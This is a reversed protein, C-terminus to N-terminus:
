RPQPRSAAGPYLEWTGTEGTLLGPRDGMESEPIPFPMPTVGCGGLAALPGILLAVAMLRSTSHFM